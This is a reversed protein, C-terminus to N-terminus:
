GSRLPSALGAPHGLSDPFRVGVRFRYIYTATFEAEYAQQGQSGGKSHEVGAGM